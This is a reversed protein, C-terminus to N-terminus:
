LFAHEGQGDNTHVKQSIGYTCMRHVERGSICLAVHDLFPFVAGIPSYLRQGPLKWAETSQLVKEAM